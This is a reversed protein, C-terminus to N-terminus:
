SSALTLHLILQLIPIKSLERMNIENNSEVYEEESSDVLEDNQTDLPQAEPKQVSSLTPELLPLLQNQADKSIITKPFSTVEDNANIKSDDTM